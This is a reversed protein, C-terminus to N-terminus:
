TGHGQMRRKHCTVSCLCVVLAFLTSLLLATMAAFIGMAEKYSQNQTNAAELDALLLCQDSDFSINNYIDM